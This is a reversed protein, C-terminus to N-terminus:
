DIKGTSEDSVCSEGFRNNGKGRPFRNPTLNGRTRTTIGCFNLPSSNVRIGGFEDHYGYAM